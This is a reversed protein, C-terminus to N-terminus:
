SSEAGTRPSGAHSATTRGHLPARVLLLATYPLHTIPALLHLTFIGILLTVVMFALADVASGQSHGQASAPQQHPDSSSTYGSESARCAVLAAALLVALM